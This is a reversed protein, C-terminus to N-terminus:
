LTGAALCCHVGRDDLFKWIADNTGVLGLVKLKKANLAEFDVERKAAIFSGSCLDNCLREYASVSQM